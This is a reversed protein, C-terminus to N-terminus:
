ASLESSSLSGSTSDFKIRGMLQNNVGAFSPPRTRQKKGWKRSGVFEGGEVEM